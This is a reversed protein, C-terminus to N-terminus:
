PGLYATFEISGILLEKFLSFPEPYTGGPFILLRGGPIAYDHGAQVTYLPRDRLNGMNGNDRSVWLTNEM